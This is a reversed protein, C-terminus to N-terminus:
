QGYGLEALRCADAQSAQFVGKALCEFQCRHSKYSQLTEMGRTLLQRSGRGPLRGHRLNGVVIAEIM